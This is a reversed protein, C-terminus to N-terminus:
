NRGSTLAMLRLRAWHVSFAYCSSTTRYVADESCPQGARRCQNV